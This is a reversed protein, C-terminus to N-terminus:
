FLKRATGDTLDSALNRPITGTRRETSLFNSGLKKAEYHSKEESQPEMKRQNILNNKM